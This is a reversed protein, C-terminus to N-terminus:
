RSATVHIGAIRDCAAFPQCPATTCCRHCSQTCNIKAASRDAFTTSTSSKSEPFRSWAVRVGCLVGRHRRNGGKACSRHLVSCVCAAAAAVALLLLRRPRRLIASVADRMSATAVKRTKHTATNTTSTPQSQCRCIGKGIKITQTKALMESCSETKFIQVPFRETWGWSRYNPRGGVVYDRFDNTLVIGVFLSDGFDTTRVTGVM